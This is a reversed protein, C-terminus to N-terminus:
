PWSAMLYLAFNKRNVGHHRVSPVSNQSWANKVEASSVTSHNVVPGM